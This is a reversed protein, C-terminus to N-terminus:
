IQGCSAQLCSFTISAPDSSNRVLKDIEPPPAIGAVMLGKFRLNSKVVQDILKSADPTAGIITQTVRFGTLYLKWDVLSFVLWFGIFIQLASLQSTDATNVTLVSVASSAYFQTGKMLM